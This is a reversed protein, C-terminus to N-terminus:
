SRRLRPVGTTASFFPGNHVYAPGPPVRQTAYHTAHQVRTRWKLFNSRSAGTSTHAKTDSMGPRDLQLLVAQLAKFTGREMRAAGLAEALLFIVKYLQVPSTGTTQMHQRAVHLAKMQYIFTGPAAVCSGGVDGSNSGFGSVHHQTAPAVTPQQMMEHNWSRRLRALQEQLLSDSDGEETQNLHHGAEHSEAM